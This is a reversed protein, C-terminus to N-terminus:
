WSECFTNGPKALNACILDPDPVGNMTDSLARQKDFAASDCYRATFRPATMSVISVIPVPSLGIQFVRAIALIVASGPNTSCCGNKFPFEGSDKPWETDEKCSIGYPVESAEDEYCVQARASVGDCM